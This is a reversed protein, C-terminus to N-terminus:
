CDMILHFHQVSDLALDSKRSQLWPLGHSLEWRSWHCSSWARYMESFPSDRVWIFIKAWSLCTQEEQTCPEGQREAGWCIYLTQPFHTKHQFDIIWSIPEPLVESQNGSSKKYEWLCSFKEEENPSSVYATTVAILHWDSIQIWCWCARRSLYLSATLM